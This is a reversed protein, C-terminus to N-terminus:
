KWHDIMKIQLHKIIEYFETSYSKLFLLNGPGVNLLYSYSKNPRLTHLLESKQKCQNDILNCQVLVVEVVELNLM